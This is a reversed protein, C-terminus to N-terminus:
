TSFENLHEFIVTPVNRHGDGPNVVMMILPKKDAFVAWAVDCVRSRLAFDRQLYKESFSITPLEPSNM